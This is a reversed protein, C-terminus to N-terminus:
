NKAKKVKVEQIQGPYQKGTNRDLHQCFISTDCIFPWKRRAAKSWGAKKLIDYEIIKDFFLLDQTGEQRQVGKQPDFHVRRPTEFVRKLQQGDFTIYTEAM